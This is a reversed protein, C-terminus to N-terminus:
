HGPRASYTDVNEKSDRGLYKNYLGEQYAYSRYSSVVRLPYGEERAKDCLSKYAEYVKERLRGSGYDSEIQVLDEPEYDSSLIHYKNVLILDGKSMDTSVIDTFLKKYRLTNVIEIMERTDSYTNLYKLYTEEKEKIFFPNTYLSVIKDKNQETLIGRNILDVVLEKELIGDFSLYEKMNEEKFSDVQLYSLATENMESLFLERNEEKLGQILAIDEELYGLEALQEEESKQCGSLLLLIVLLMIKRM